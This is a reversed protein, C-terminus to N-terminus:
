FCLAAPASPDCHGRQQAGDSHVGCDCRAPLEHGTTRATHLARRRGRVLPGATAAALSHQDKASVHAGDTHRRSIIGRVHRKTWWRRRNLVVGRQYDWHCIIRRTPEAPAVVVVKAPVRVVGGASWGIYSWRHRSRQLVAAEEDGDDQRSRSDAVRHPPFHYAPVELGAFLCSSSSM